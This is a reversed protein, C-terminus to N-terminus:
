SRLDSTASRNKWERAVIGYVKLDVFTERVYNAERFVGELTFGLREPIACSKVNEVACHIEVRNLKWENFAHDIVARCAATVIGRGQFKSVIWYGIEVKRNLWDVKHTGITGAYEDGCWIGAAFGENRAFTELSKQIFARTDDASKSHDVWPLWERLYERERDVVSFVQDAHRDELLTLFVGEQIARTFM